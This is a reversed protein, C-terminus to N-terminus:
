SLSMTRSKKGEDKKSTEKYEYVFILIQKQKGLVLALTPVSVLIYSIFITFRRLNSVVLVLQTYLNWKM